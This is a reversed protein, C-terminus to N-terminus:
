KKPVFVLVRSKDDGKGDEVFGFLELVEGVSVRQSANANSSITGGKKERPVRTKIKGKGLGHLLGFVFPTSLDGKNITSDVRIGHLVMTRGAKTAIISAQIPEDEEERIGYVVRGDLAMKSGKLAFFQDKLTQSSNATIPVLLKQQKLLPCWKSLFASTDLGNEIKEALRYAFLEFQSIYDGIRYRDGGWKKREEKKKRAKKKDKERQEDSWYEMILVEGLKLGLQGVKQHSGVHVLTKIKSDKRLYVEMMIRISKHKLPHAWPKSFQTGPLPLIARKNPFRFYHQIRDRVENITENEFTSISFLYGRMQGKTDKYRFVFPITVRKGRKGRKGEELITVPNRLFEEEDEGESEEEEDVGRPTKKVPREENKKSM